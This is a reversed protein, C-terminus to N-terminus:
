SGESVPNRGTVEILQSNQDGWGSQQSHRGQNLRNYGNAVDVLEATVAHTVETLGVIMGLCVVTMILMLETSLVFGNEDDRLKKLFALM